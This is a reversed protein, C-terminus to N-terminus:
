HDSKKHYQECAQQSRLSQLSFRANVVEAIHLCICVCFCSEYSSSSENGVIAVPVKVFIDGYRSRAADVECKGSAAFADHLRGVISEIVDFLYGDIGLDCFGSM